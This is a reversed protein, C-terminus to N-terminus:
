NADVELLKDALAQCHGSRNTYGCSMLLQKVSGAYPTVFAKGLWVSKMIKLNKEKM